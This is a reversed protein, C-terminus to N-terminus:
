QLYYVESARRARAEASALLAFLAYSLVRAEPGIRGPTCKGLQALAATICRLLAIAVHALRNTAVTTSSMVLKRERERLERINQQEIPQTM